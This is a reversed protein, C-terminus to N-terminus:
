AINKTNSTNPNDQQYFDKLLQVAKEAHIGGICMLKSGFQPTLDEDGSVDLVSGCGGFRENQCGYVVLPIGMARVMAACMICPEVTVYLTCKKFSNLTEQELDHGSENRYEALLYRYADDIAVAEAHRTANKSVNVENRGVGIVKEDNLVIICGVPVEGNKLADDAYSFAKSMWHENFPRDM